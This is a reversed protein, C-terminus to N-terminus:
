HYLMFVWAYAFSSETNMLKFFRKKNVIEENHIYKFQSNRISFYDVYYKKLLIYKIWPILQWPQLKRCDEEELIQMIKDYMRKARIEMAFHERFISLRLDMPITPISLVLFAGEYEVVAQSEQNQM